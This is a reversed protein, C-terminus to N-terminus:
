GSFHHKLSDLLAKFIPDCFDKVGGPSDKWTSSWVVFTANSDTVAFVRVVAVHGSIQDRSVLEPGDDISYTIVRDVDDLGRLTEHFAGNLVRKAGLQDGAADGIPKLSTVVAPAWSMDHFNRLAAWVQEVPANVVCTNYCGM